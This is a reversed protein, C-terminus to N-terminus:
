EDELSQMLKGLLLNKDHIRKVKKLEEVFFKTTERAGHEIGCDRGEDWADYLSDDDQSRTEPSSGLM